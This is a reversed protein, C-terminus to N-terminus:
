YDRHRDIYIQIYIDGWWAVKEKKQTPPSTRLKGRGHVPASCRDGECPARFLPLHESISADGVGGKRWEDMSQRPADMVRAHLGLFSSTKRFPPWPITESAIVCEKYRHWLQHLGLHIHWRWRPTSFHSPQFTFIQTFLLKCLNNLNLKKLYSKLVLKKLIHWFLTKIFYRIDEFFKKSWIYM